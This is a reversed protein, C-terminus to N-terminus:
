FKNEILWLTQTQKARQNLEILNSDLPEGWFLRLYRQLALTFLIAKNDLKEM